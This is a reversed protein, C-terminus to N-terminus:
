SQRKSATQMKGHVVLLRDVSGPRLDSFFIYWPLIIVVSALRPAISLSYPTLVQNLFAIWFRRRRILFILLWVHHVGPSFHEM